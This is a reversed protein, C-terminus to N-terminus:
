TVYKGIENKLKQYGASTPLYSVLRRHKLDFPVDEISQTLLITNKNLAHAYGLEYFVNPNRGTLDAIVLDARLINEWIQDIVESAKHIEDARACLWSLETMAAQICHKYISDFEGGFPMLVFCIKRGAIFDLLKYIAALQQISVKGISVQELILKRCNKCLDAARVGDLLVNKKALLLDMPCSESEYHTPTAIGLSEFIIDILGFTIVRLISYKSFDIDWGKTSIIAKQDDSSTVIQDKFHYDCIGLTYDKISKSDIYRQLLTEVQDSDIKRSPRTENQLRITDTADFSFRFESQLSNLTSSLNSIVTADASGM